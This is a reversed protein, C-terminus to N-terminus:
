PCKREQITYMPPLLPNPMSHHTETERKSGDSHSATTSQTVMSISDHDKNEYTVNFDNIRTASQFSHIPVSSSLSSEDFSKGVPSKSNNQRSRVNESKLNISLDSSLSNLYHDINVIESHSLKGGSNCVERAKNLWKHARKRDSKFGFVGAYYYSGM